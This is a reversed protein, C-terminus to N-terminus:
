PGQLLLASAQRTKRHWGRVKWREILTRSYNMPNEHGIKELHTALDKRRTQRAQFSWQFRDM